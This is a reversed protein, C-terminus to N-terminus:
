GERTLEVVLMDLAVTPELRSTKLSVDTELLRAMIAELREISYNRAQEVAKRTAFPHTGLQKQIADIGLGRMGLDKAQLILRYQRAIMTLLYFENVSQRLQDHLLELARTSRRQGLADTLEFIIQERAPAVLEQVDQRRIPQGNRFVLLKEIENDLARLDTGIFLALDNAASFDMTNGKAEVRDLVWNALEDQKPPMFLRVQAHKKDKEAFKLVANNKALAKSEIFALRTTPPLQPLYELLKDKLDPDAEEEIEGEDTSKRRPDLRALLSEVIVLRTEALFPIADAHHRLEGFSLSRGELRTTNLEAFQPDGMQARLERLAAARTFDDEGHYVYYM